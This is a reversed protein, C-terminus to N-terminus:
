AGAFMRLRQVVRRTAAVIPEVDAETNFKGLSYRVAARALAQSVGMAKLVHSPELSGVACASGSSVSVGELDLGLLLGDVECGEFSFNVTNAIRHAVSGNRRAGPITEQIRGALAETLTRLRAMEAPMERVALEAAQAMGVIAPVNETGARRENEHSGGHLMPEFRTGRRVYLVGVGKPGYFKHGAISLMDVGWDAVNVLEKGFSQVADTHFTVGRERCIASLERIPQLTGTENNASMISVLVTDPRIARRLDGPDVLGAPDVPLCTVECEGSKELHRCAHLVAHHETGVTVLHRGRARCARTVGFIATNDSETGGGTFILEAEQAGILKAMRARADDIAARAERGDLHVSSANGFKDRWYPQMTELAEPALPTTANYDAYIRPM